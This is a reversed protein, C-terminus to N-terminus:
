RHYGSGVMTLGKNPSFAARGLRMTLALRDFAEKFDPHQALACHLQHPYYYTMAFGRNAELNIDLIIEAARLGSEGMGMRMSRSVNEM